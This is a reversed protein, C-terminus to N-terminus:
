TELVGYIWLEFNEELSLVPSVQGVAVPYGIYAFEQCAMSVALM